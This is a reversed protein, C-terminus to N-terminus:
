NALSPLKMSYPTGNLPSNPSYAREEEPELPLLGSDSPRPVPKGHGKPFTLGQLRPELAKVACRLHGQSLWASNSASGGDCKLLPLSSVLM